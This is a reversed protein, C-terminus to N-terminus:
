NSKPGYNEGKLNVKEYKNWDVLTLQKVMGKIDGQNRSIFTLIIDNKEGTLIKGDLFLGWDGGGQVLNVLTNNKMYPKENRLILTPKLVCGFEYDWAYRKINQTYHDFVEWYEGKIAKYITVFHNYIGVPNLIENGNAYRCLVVLPAQNLIKFILDKNYVPIWERYIEYKVLKNLVEQPIEVGYYDEKVPTDPWESELLLGQNRATDFIKSLWGGRVIDIDSMKALARDSFNIQKGTLRHYLIELSNTVAYAGCASRDYGGKNQYEVVPLHFSWDNNIILDPTNLPSYGKAIWDNVKPKEIIIDEM